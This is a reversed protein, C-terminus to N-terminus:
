SMVLEIVWAPDDARPPRRHRYLVMERELAESYVPQRPGVQITKGAATAASVQHAPEPTGHEGAQALADVVEVGGASGPSWRYRL